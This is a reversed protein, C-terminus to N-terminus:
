RGAGEEGTGGGKRRFVWMDALRKGEAKELVREKEKDKEGERGDGARRKKRLMKEKGAKGSGGGSGDGDGLRSSGARGGDTSRVSSALSRGGGAEASGGSDGGRSLAHSPLRKDEDLESETRPDGAGALGSGGSSPPPTFDNDTLITTRSDGRPRITATRASLTGNSRATSPRRLASVADAPADNLSNSWSADSFVNTRLPQLPSTPATESIHAKRDMQEILEEWKLTLIGSPREAQEAQDLCDRTHLRLADCLTDFRHLESSQKIPSPNNSTSPRAKNECWIAVLASFERAQDLLYPLSLFGERSTPPLRGLVTIPTAYSPPIATSAQDPSIACIADVFEKFETRHSTLFANMPEM